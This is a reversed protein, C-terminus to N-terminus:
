LGPSRGRAKSKITCTRYRRTGTVKRGDKATATITITVRGKPLGVLDIPATLRKGKLARVRKGNVLVRASVFTVGRLKRIRIRFKRRSVCRKSPPLEFVKTAKLPAPANTPSPAPPPPPAPTTVPAPPAAGTAGAEHAGLDCAAGAGARAFGRQDLLPCDAFPVRDLAPSAAGPAHTNSPGGNDALAGLLPDATIDAPATFGCGTADTSLNAAASTVTDNSFCEAGSGGSNGAVISRSVTVPDNYFIGGGQSDIDVATNGTVTVNALTSPSDNVFLGAGQPGHSGGLTGDLTNGSITVNVLTVSDNAFLGGGQPSFSDGTISAATNGAILVRELTMPGGAFVGAGQRSSTTAAQSTANGTVAADRLTTM